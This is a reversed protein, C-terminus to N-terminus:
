YRPDRGSQGHASALIARLTTGLMGWRGQFFRKQLLHLAIGLRAARARPHRQRHLTLQNRVGYFTSLRSHRGITSSRPHIVPFEALAIPLDLLHARLCWAADELYLFFEEPWPGLRAWQGRPVLISAGSLSERAGLQRCSPPLGAPRVQVGRGFWPAQLDAGLLRSGDRQQTGWLAVGPHARALALLRGLTPGELTADNNLFWAAEAGAAFAHAAGLNCGAGFGPNAPNALIAMLPHAGDLAAGLGTGPGHDVVVVGHPETEVLALNALCRRTLDPQGYHVLVVVPLGAFLPPAGASDMPMEM